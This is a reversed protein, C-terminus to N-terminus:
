ILSLLGGLGKLADPNDGTRDLLLARMGLARPGEVDWRPDDGVFIADGPEVGLLNLAHTFVKPDPKRWGVDRCFVAENVLPALGLRALERRWLGAPSGWPTNSVIATKAGRSRLEELTPKVDDHLVALSFIPETFAACLADVTEEDRVGFIYGLRAELPNVRYDQSERDQERVRGWLGGEIFGVGRDLLHRRCSGICEALVGPFEERSYYSVLTNGLDFLVAKVLAM